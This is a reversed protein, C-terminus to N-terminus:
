LSLLGGFNIHHSKLRAREGRLADFGLFAGSEVVQTSSRTFAHAWVLALRLQGALNGVSTKLM